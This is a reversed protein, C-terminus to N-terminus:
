LGSRRKENGAADSLTKIAWQVAQGIDDAELGWYDKMFLAGNSSSLLHLVAAFRM